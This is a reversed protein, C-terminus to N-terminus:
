GPEDVALLFRLGDGEREPLSAIRGEVRREAGHLEAPWRGELLPQARWVTFLFGTMVVAWAARLRWPVLAPVALAALWPWAPLEALAHVILVGATFAAIVLIARM